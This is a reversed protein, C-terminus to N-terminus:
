VKLFVLLEFPKITKQKIIDLIKNDKSNSTNDKTKYKNTYIM